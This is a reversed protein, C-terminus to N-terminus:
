ILREISIFNNNYAGGIMLTIRYVKNYGYNLIYTATDGESGFSWDFLSASASTTLAVGASNGGVHGGGYMGYTGSVYCNVTGSVTSLSLGRNGGTTVMAKINDMTISVGSNVYGAVKTANQANIFTPGNIDIWYSNTGDNVYQYLTDNTSNYWQDGVVPNSPKTNSTTQRVGGGVINGTVNLNSSVNGTLSINGVSLNGSINASTLTGVSTINPQANTYVTSAVLANAVQGNINGAPLNTLSGGSGVFTGNITGTVSLSNSITVSTNTGYTVNGAGFDPGIRINTNSSTLGGTGLFINKVNGAPLTSTQIYTNSNAVSRGLVINSTQLGGGITIIATTVNSGFSMAAASTGLLAVTTNSYLSGNNVNVNGTGNLTFSNASIRDPSINGTYTPLYSAVNSDTYNSNGGGGGGSVTLPSGNAFYYHDTFIAKTHLGDPNIHAVVNANGAGGAVFKVQTGSSTTGLVLNGGGAGGQVYVWGDDASVADGLSNTQTGDWGSGAIGMDIYNTADDGNDATAVWETSAQNGSNINQFNIQVYDNISASAQIVPNVVSSFGTPIGAYLAGIGNADGFFSGANGTVQSVNGIFNINGDVRLNGLILGDGSVKLDQDITANGTLTLNDLALNGTYGSTIFGTDNTLDSVKTPIVLNAISDDVYTTSALGAISPITPINALDNYDGSTAVTAFSPKNPINAWDTNPININAIHTDVYTTTALGAISPITPKNILDTYSGTQAVVAFSPKGGVNNWTLNATTVYNAMNPAGSLNAFSINAVANGLNRLNASTAYSSFDPKNTLDNYNGSTAVTALTPKNLIKTVGAVANWDSQLQYDTSVGWSLGGNGDTRLFDGDAGGTIKVSGVSGLNTVGYVTLNGTLVENNSTLVKTSTNFQLQDDGTLGGNVNIQVDNNAGNAQVLNNVNVYVIKTVSVNSDPAPPMNEPNTDLLAGVVPNSDYLPNSLYGLSPDVASNVPIPKQAM